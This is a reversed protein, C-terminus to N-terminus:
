TTKHCFCPAVVRRLHGRTSQTSASHPATLVVTCVKLHHCEPFACQNLRGYM